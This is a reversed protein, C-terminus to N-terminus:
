GLGSSLSADRGHTASGSGGNGIRDLIQLHLFISCYLLRANNHVRDVKVLVYQKIRHKGEIKSDKIAEPFRAKLKNVLDEERTPSQTAM